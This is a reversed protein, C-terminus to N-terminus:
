NLQAASLQRRGVMRSMPNHADFQDQDGSAGEDIRISAHQDRLTRRAFWHRAQPFERAALDLRALPGLLREDAFEVLLESDIDLLWAQSGERKRAMGIRVKVEQHREVHAPTPFPRR